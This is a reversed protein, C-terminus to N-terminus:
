ATVEERQLRKLIEDTIAAVNGSGDVTMLLNQEDFYSRLPSSMETEVEFRRMIADEADDARRTIPSGCEDCFGDFHSPKLPVNYDIECSDCHRRGTLRRFLTEKDVKLEIVRDLPMDESALWKQLIQAQPVTRPVGDLIFGKTRCDDQSLREEVIRVVVDDPVYNGGDTYSKALLGLETGAKGAERFIKGTSIHPAQLRKALLIAQTGKGSGPPGFMVLRLQSM